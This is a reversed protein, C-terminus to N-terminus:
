RELLQVAVGRPPLKCGRVSLSGLITENKILHKLLSEEGILDEPKKCNARLGVRLKESVNHKKKSPKTVGSM